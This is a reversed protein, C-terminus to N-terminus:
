PRLTIAASRCQYRVSRLSYASARLQPRLPSSTRFWLLIGTSPHSSLHPLLFIIALPLSPPSPPILLPLSPHPFYRDPICQILPYLAGSTSALIDDVSSEGYLLIKLVSELFHALIEVVTNRYIINIIHRPPLLPLPSPLPPLSPFASPIYPVYGAGALTEPKDRHAAAIAAVAELSNRSITVDHHAVGFELARLLTHYLNPSLHMLSLSQESIVYSVTMFFLRCLKPFQLLEAGQAGALFPLMAALGDFIAHTTQASPCSPSASSLTNLTHFIVKACKYRERMEERSKAPTASVERAYAQIAGRLMAYFALVNEEPIHELQVDSFAAFVSLALKVLDAHISFAAIVTPLVTGYAAMARMVWEGARGTGSNCIGDLVCLSESIVQTTQGASNLLPALRSNLPVAIDALLQTALDGGTLVSFTVLASVLNGLM